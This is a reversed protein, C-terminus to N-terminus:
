RSDNQERTFQPPRAENVRLTRGMFENGNLANVADEAEKPSEMEVFGFGRGEKISVNTVSGYASFLDKIDDATAAYNLNGVYLKKGEM